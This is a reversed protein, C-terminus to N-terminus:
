KKKARLKGCRENLRAVMDTLQLNIEELNGMRTGTIANAQNTGQCIVYRYWQDSGGTPDAVPVVSAIAFPTESLESPQPASM